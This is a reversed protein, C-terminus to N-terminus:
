AKPSPHTAGGQGPPVPVMLGKRLDGSPAHTDRIRWGIRLRVLDLRITKRKGDEAFTVTAVARGPGRSVIAVHAATFSWAKADVFVDSALWARERKDSAEHAARIMLEALVPEFYRRFDADADLAFGENPGIHAAYIAAVFDHASSARAEGDRAALGAVLIGLALNRLRRVRRRRRCQIGDQM